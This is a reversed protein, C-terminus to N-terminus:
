VSSKRGIIYILNGLNSIYKLEMRTLRQVFATPLFGFWPSVTNFGGSDIIEFHFAALWDKLKKMDFKTVHQHNAIPPTLKFKDLLSEIFPWLSKYNPTTLLIKGGPKLARYAQSFLLNIENEYLHEIVEQYVIKSCSGPEFKAAGIAEARFDVNNLGECQRKAVAIAEESIDLATAYRAKKAIRSFVNGSGCGIELVADEASVPFKEEILYIQNFHWTRQIFNGEHLAKYQYDGPIELYRKPM